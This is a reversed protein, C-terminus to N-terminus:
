NEFAEVVQPGRGADVPYIGHNKSGCALGDLIQGLKEFVQLLRSIGIEIRGSKIVELLQNQFADSFKLCDICGSRMAAGRLGTTYEGTVITM